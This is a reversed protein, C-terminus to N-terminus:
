NERKRERQTELEREEERDRDRKREREREREREKRQRRYPGIVFATRLSPIRASFSTSPVYWSKLSFKSSSVIQRSQLNCM